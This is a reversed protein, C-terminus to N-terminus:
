KKDEKPDNSLYVMGQPKNEYFIYFMHRTSWDANQNFQYMMTGRQKYKDVFDWIIITTFGDHKEKKNYVDYYNLEGWYFRNNVQKVKIFNQRMQWMELTELSCEASAFVDWHVTQQAFLEFSCFLLCALAMIKKM